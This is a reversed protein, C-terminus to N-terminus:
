ERCRRECRAREDACDARRDRDLADCDGGGGERLMDRCVQCRQLCAVRTAGVTGDCACAAACRQGVAERCETVAKAARELCAAHSRECAALCDAAVGHPAAALLALAMIGVRSTMAREYGM